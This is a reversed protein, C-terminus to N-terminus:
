SGKGQSDRSWLKKSWPSRTRFRFSPIEYVQIDFFAILHREMWPQSANFAERPGAPLQFAGFTDLRKAAIIRLRAILSPVKPENSECLPLCGVQAIVTAEVGLALSLVSM